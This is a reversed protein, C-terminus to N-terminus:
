KKPKTKDNDWTNSCKGETAETELEEYKGEGNESPTGDEKRLKM